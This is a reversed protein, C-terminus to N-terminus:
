YVIVGDNRRQCPLQDVLQFTNTNVDAAADTWTEIITLLDALLFVSHASSNEAHAALNQVIVNVLAFRRDESVVTAADSIWRVDMTM